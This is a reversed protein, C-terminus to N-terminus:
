ERTGAGFDGAHDLAWRTFPTGPHGTLEAFDGTPQEPNNIMSQWTDVMSTATAGDTGQHTLRAIAAQRDLPELRLERGIAASIAQVQQEGTVTEPGTITYVRDAPRTLAIVAVEALDREHVLPRPIGGFPARVVGEDRIGAAWELTNSAFGGGRIFTTRTRAATLLREIRRHSALIPGVQDDDGDVDAGRASLYVVRDVRALLDVVQQATQDQGTSWLLFVGDIGDLAAAITEPRAYDGVAVEVGDPAAEPRRVLVRVQHDHHLLQRTVEAGTRGSAGTVLFM